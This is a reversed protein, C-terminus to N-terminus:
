EGKYPPIQGSRIKPNLEQTQLIIKVREIPAVATKAVAGAVGGALLDNLFERM